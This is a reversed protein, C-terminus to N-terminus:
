FFNEFIGLAEMILKENMINKKQKLEDIVHKQQVKLAYHPAYASRKAEVLYVRGFTGEGLIKIKILEEQTINDPNMVRAVKKPSTSLTTSSSDEMSSSGGGGRLMETWSMGGIAHEFSSKMIKFLSCESSNVFYSKTTVFPPSIVAEQAFYQGAQLMEAVEGNEDVIGIEGSQIVYFSRTSSGDAHLVYRNLSHTRLPSSLLLFSFLPSSLDFTCNFMM